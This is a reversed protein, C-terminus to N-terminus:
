NWIPACKDPAGKPTPCMWASWARGDKNGTVYSRPGHLCSPAAQQPGAPAPEQQQAPQQWVDAPQTAQQRLQELPTVSMGQPPQQVPPPSQQAYGSTAAPQPDLGAQSVNDLARITDNTATLDSLLDTGTLAAMSQKMEEVSNARVNLLGTQGYGFKFSAQLKYDDSM